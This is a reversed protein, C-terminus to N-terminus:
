SKEIRNGLKKLFSKNVTLALPIVFFFNQKKTESNEDDERNKQL